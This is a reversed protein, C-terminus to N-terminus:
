VRGHQRGYRLWKKWGRTAEPDVPSAPPSVQAPSSVINGTKIPMQQVQDITTCEILRFARMLLRPDGRFVDIELRIFRAWRPEFSHRPEVAQNNTVHFM